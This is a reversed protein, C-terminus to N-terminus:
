QDNCENREAIDLFQRYAEDTSSYVMRAAAERAVHIIDQDASDWIARKEEEATRKADAIIKDAQARAEGMQLAIYQDLEEQAKRRNEKIRDDANDLLEKAKEEFERVSELKENAESDLARYHAERKEIFKRIPSYLLIYLGGTLIVFNLAHLLIQQWDINLPIQM